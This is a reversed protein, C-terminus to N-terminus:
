LTPRLSRAGSRLPGRGDHLAAPGLRLVCGAAQATAIITGGSKEKWEWVREIFDTVGSLKAPSSRRSATATRGCKTHRHRCPGNRADLPHQLGAHPALPGFYGPPYQEVRPRHPPLRDREPSSHRHLLASPHRVSLRSVVGASGIGTGGTKSRNPITSRISNSLRCAQRKSPTHVRM